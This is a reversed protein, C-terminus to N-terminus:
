LGQEVVFPAVVILLRLIAVLSHGGSGVVPSFGSCCCLSMVVM